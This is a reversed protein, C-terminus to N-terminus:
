RVGAGPRFHCGRGALLAQPRGSPSSIRVRIHARLEFSGCVTLYNKLYDLVFSSCIIWLCHRIILFYIIEFLRFNFYDLIISFLYDCIIM